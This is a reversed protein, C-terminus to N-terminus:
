KVNASAAVYRARATELDRGTQTRARRRDVLTREHAHQTSLAQFAAEASTASAYSAKASAIAAEEAAVAAAASSDAASASQFSNWANTFAADASM